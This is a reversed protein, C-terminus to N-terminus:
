DKAISGGLLLDAANQYFIRETLEKGFSECFARFIEEVGALGNKIFGPLTCGDFDSGMALARGGGRELIADAHRILDNIDAGGGDRLFPDHLNLGILGGRRIIEDIQWDDLNRPHRCVSRANSHTALVPGQAMSFLQEAGRDSLHSIDLLMGLGEGKRVAMRGLPTLGLGAGLCGGALPGDSNWTLSFIRVGDGALKSIDNESTILQGANEVSLIHPGKPMREESYFKRYRRYASLADRGKYREEIFIAFVQSYRCFGGAARATVHWGDAGFPVGGDCCRTLTDCHLDFYDM